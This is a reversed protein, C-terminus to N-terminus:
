NTPKFRRKSAPNLLPCGSAVIADIDALARKPASRPSVAPPALAFLPRKRPRPSADDDASDASVPAVPEDDDDAAAPSAPADSSALALYARMTGTSRILPNAKNIGSALLSLPPWHAPPRSGFYSGHWAGCHWGRRRLAAELKASLGHAEAVATSAKGSGRLQSLAAGAIAGFGAMM